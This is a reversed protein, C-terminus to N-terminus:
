GYVTIIGEEVGTQQTIIKKVVEYKNSNINAINKDIVLNALDAYIREIQMNESYIDATINIYIGSYGSNNLETQIDNKLANLKQVNIQSIFSIDISVEETDLFDYLSFDSNLLKPLPSIVTFIVFFAFVSKLYRNTQGEPLIIDILVGLLVVGSISLIWTSFTM